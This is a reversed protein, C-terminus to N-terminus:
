ILFDIMNIIVSIESINNVQTKNFGFELIICMKIIEIDSESQPTEFNYLIFQQINPRAIEDLIFQKLKLVIQYQPTLKLETEFAVKIEERSSIIDM